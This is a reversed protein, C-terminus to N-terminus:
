FEDLLLPIMNIGSAVFAGLQRQVVAPDREGAELAELLESLDLPDVKQKVEEPNSMLNRHVSYVPLRLFSSPPTTAVTPEEAKIIPFVPVSSM